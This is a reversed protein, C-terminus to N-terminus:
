ALGQTGFSPTWGNACNTGCTWFVDVMGGNELQDSEM